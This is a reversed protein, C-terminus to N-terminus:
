LADALNLHISNNRFIKDAINDAFKPLHLTPIDLMNLDHNLNELQQICISNKPNISFHFNIPLGLALLAAVNGELQEVMNYITLPVAVLDQVLDQLDELTAAIALLEPPMLASYIQAILCPIDMLFPIELTFTGATALGQKIKGMIDGIFMNTQDLTSITTKVKDVLDNYSTNNLLSTSKFEVDSVGQIKAVDKGLQIAPKVFNAGSSLGAMLNFTHFNASNIPILDDEGIDFGISYSELPPSSLSSPTSAGTARKVAMAAAALHKQVNGDGLSAWKGVTWQNKPSMQSFIKYGAKANTNPNELRRGTNDRIERDLGSYQSPNNLTRIQFLGVTAGYTGNKAAGNSALVRLSSEAMMVAVAITLDKGRFGAHYAVQVAEQDTITQRSGDWAIPADTIGSTDVDPLGNVSVPATYKSKASPDVSVELDDASKMNINSDSMASIGDTGFNM